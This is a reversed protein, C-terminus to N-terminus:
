IPIKKLNLRKFNHSTWPPELMNGQWRDTSEVYRSVSVKAGNMKRGNESQLGSVICHDGPKLQVTEALMWQADSKFEKPRSVEEDSDVPEQKRSEQEGPTGSATGGKQLLEKFSPAIPSRSRSCSIVEVTKNGRARSPTNRARSRRKHSDRNRDTRRRVQRHSSNSSRSSSGESSSSAASRRTNGRGRKRRSRSRRSSGRRKRGRSSERGRRGSHSRSSSTKRRGRYNHDSDYDSRRRDSRSRSRRGTDKEKWSEEAWSRDTSRKGSDKDDWSTKTDGWTEKKNDWSETKGSDKKDWSQQKDNRSTKEEGWSSKDGKNKDDWSAKKDDWSSKKDDWTAKEETEAGWSAAGWEQSDWSKPEVDQLERFKAVASSRSSRDQGCVLLRDTGVETSSSGEFFAITGTEEEVQAIVTDSLNPRKESPVLIEDMDARESANVVMPASTLLWMAYDWGCAREERSGAMCLVDGVQDCVCRAAASLSKWRPPLCRTVADGELRLIEIDFGFAGKGLPAGLPKSFTGPRGEEVLAMVRFEAAKRPREKGFIVLMKAQALEDERKRSEAAEGELKERLHSTPLQGESGDYQWKVTAEGDVDKLFTADNWSTGYLAEVPTNEAFKCPLSRAQSPSGPLQFVSITGTDQELQNLNARKKGVVATSTEEPIPVRACIAELCEPVDDVQGGSSNQLV